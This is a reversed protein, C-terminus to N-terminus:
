LELCVNGADSWACNQKHLEETLLAGFQNFDLANPGRKSTSYFMNIINKFFVLCGDKRGFISVFYSFGHEQKYFCQARKFFV